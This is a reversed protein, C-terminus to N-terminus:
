QIDQGLRPRQMSSARHQRSQKGHGVRRHLLLSILGYLHAHRFGERKTSDQTENLVATLQGTDGSTYYDLVM